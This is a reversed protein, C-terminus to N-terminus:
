QFDAGKKILHHPTTFQVALAPTIQEGTQSSAASNAVAVEHLERKLAVIQMELDAAQTQLTALREEGALPAEPRHPLTMNASETGPQMEQQNGKNMGRMMFYMMVSMTLPCLLLLLGFGAAVGRLAPLFVFVAVLVAGAAILFKPNLCSRFVGKLQEM